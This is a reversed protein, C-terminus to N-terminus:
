TKEDLEQIKENILRGLLEYIDELIRLKSLFLSYKGTGGGM